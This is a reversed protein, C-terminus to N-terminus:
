ATRKEAAEITKQLRKARAEPTQYYFVAMLENRRQTPTMLKWGARAKASKRFAEAILPPLEIEAEMTNLLREAVQQCRNMRAEDSKVGAIWKGLERRTYETLTDYWARLGPEEDLLVALEDPLEAERPDLDPELTFTATDGLHAHSGQQMSKNVLLFFGGRQDPFLSTRFPHAGGPGLIEGRVRLRIMKPWATSPEFPVRAITWGLSQGLHELTATFTKPLKPM